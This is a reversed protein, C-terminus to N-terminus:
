TEGPPLPNAWLDPEDNDGLYPSLYKVNFVDYTNLHPPLRLRYANPNIREIVEVPGLRRAKLKNYERALLRDKTIM